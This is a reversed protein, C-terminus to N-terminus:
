HRFFLYEFDKYMKDLSALLQYNKLTNRIKGNTTELKPIIESMTKALLAEQMKMIATQLKAERGAIWDEKRKLVDSLRRPLKM